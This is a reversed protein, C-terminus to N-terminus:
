CVCHEPSTKLQGPIADGDAVDIVVIIAHLLRDEDAKNLRQQPKLTLISTRKPKTFKSQFVEISCSTQRENM